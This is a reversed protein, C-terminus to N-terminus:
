LSVEEVKISSLDMTGLGMESAVLIYPIDGATLGLLSTAYSDAAVIDHSAIITNTMKVDDLNGGTPGHDMLTRVADVVTLGPRIVSVLDAIRQNLDAHIGNRNQIVGLLNKEAITIRALQHHKVVPVDILLDCNLVDQYIAWETISKGQPIPTTKFKNRNMIEMEGGAARVAEGIGSRAYASEGSGGFPFDMVRVRKAGAGLALKVLTAVVVPNTTAAYEYSYYDTCINPKIIVDFGSHVFREIGGLAKVAAETIAAPDAGRVAALYAQGAEPAAPVTAKASVEATPLDAKEAQTSGGPKAEEPQIDGAHPEEPMQSGESIGGCASLLLAASGIGMRRLLERRMMRMEKGSAIKRM